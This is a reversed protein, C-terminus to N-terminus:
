YIFVAEAELDEWRGNVKVKPLMRGKLEYIKSGDAAVSFYIPRVMSSVLTNAPKMRVIVANKGDIIEDRLKEFQFGFTDMHELAALNAEVIKNSQIDSWHGKLFPVFSPGIVLNEPLKRSRIETKGNKTVSFKIEEAIVELVYKENLQKQDIVYKQLDEKKFHAEETLIEKKETNIYKSKFININKKPKFLEAKLTFLLKKRDSNLEYIKGGRFKAAPSSQIYLLQITFISVFLATFNFRM